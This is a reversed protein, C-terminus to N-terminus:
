LFLFRPYPMPSSVRRLDFSAEHFVEFSSYHLHSFVFLTQVQWDRCQLRSAIASFRRLDWLYFEHADDDFLQLTSLSLRQSSSFPVPWTPAVDHGASRFFFRFRFPYSRFCWWRTQSTGQLNLLYLEGGEQVSAHSPFRRASQQFAHSSRLDAFAPMVLHM